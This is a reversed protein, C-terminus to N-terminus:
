QIRNLIIARHEQDVHDEYDSSDDDPFVLKCRKCVLFYEGGRIRYRMSSGFCKTTAVGRTIHNDSDMVFDTALQEKEQIVSEDFTVKSMKSIKQFIDKLNM